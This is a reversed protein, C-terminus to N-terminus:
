QKNHENKKELLLRCVLYTRSQLESTHEESRSYKEIIEKKKEPTIAVAIRRLFPNTRFIKRPTKYIKDKTAVFFSDDIAKISLTNIYIGNNDKFYYTDNIEYANIDVKIIGLPMALYLYKDFYLCDNIVKDVTINKNYVDPINVIDGNEYM